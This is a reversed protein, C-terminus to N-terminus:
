KLLKKIKSEEKKVIKGDIMELGLIELANTKESALIIDLPLGMIYNKSKLYSEHDTKMIYYGKNDIDAAFTFFLDDPDVEYDAVTLNNVKSKMDKLNNNITHMYEDAKDFTIVSSFGHTARSTYILALSIAHHLYIM